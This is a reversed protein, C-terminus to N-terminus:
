VKMGILRWYTLRSSRRVNRSIPRPQYNIPTPQLLCDIYRVQRKWCQNFANLSPAGVVNETLSNWTNVVRNSFSNARLTLRIRNKFLKKSYGSTITNSAMTFFKSKDVKDINNVIKYVQIM